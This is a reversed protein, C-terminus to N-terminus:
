PRVGPTCGVTNVDPSTNDYGDPGDFVPDQTQFPADYGSAIMAPINSVEPADWDTCWVGDAEELSRTFASNPELSFLRVRDSEGMNLLNSVSTDFGGESSASRTLYIVKECGLNRLALTPHLDSWGGVSVIDNGPLELGRALGPEAPSYTLVEAWTLTGLSIFKETKLDEFGGPNSAMRALDDAQGFYGLRVDDYDVNWAISMEADNYAARGANFVDVADGTLVGTSVFAPLHAGIPDDARSAFSAEDALLRTRFGVVLENFVEGCTGGDRTPLGIIEQWSMGRSQPACEALFFDFADTDVPAYGAYFSGIRGLGRAFNPFDPIGPRLFVRFDPLEFAAANQAVSLIDQAHFVPDPSTQLLQLLERNILGALDPSSLLDELAQVAAAPDEALLAELNREQALQNFRTLSQIALGEDSSSLAGAYGEISKFLLAARAGREFPTCGECAVAPNMQVSEVLFTSISGSSGGGVGDFLGYHEYMRALAGFHATIRPGNGRIGVCLSPGEGDQSVLASEGCYDFDAIACCAATEAANASPDLDFCGAADGGCDPDPLLCFTDCIDDSYWGFRACYDIGDDAAGSNAVEDKSLLTTPPETSSGGSSCALLFASLALFRKM